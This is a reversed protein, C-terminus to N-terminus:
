RNENNELKQIREEIYDMVWFGHPNKPFNRDIGNKTINGKAFILYNNEEEGRYEKMAIIMQFSYPEGKSMNVNIEKIFSKQYINYQIFRNYFQDNERQKHLNEFDGLWLAKEVKTEWNTQNLSYFNNVFMLLHHKIEIEINENKEEWKLPLIEGTPTIAYLFKRSEKVANKSILVNSLICVITIAVCSYTIISNRILFKKITNQNEM